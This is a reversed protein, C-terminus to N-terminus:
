LFGVKVELGEERGTPVGMERVGTRGPGTGWALWGPSGVTGPGLLM